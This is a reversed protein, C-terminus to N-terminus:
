SSSSRRSSGGKPSSPGSLPTYLIYKERFFEEEFLNSIETMKPHLASENIEEKLDGGKLCILGSRLQVANKEEGFQYTGNKLLPKSWQWLEKLPAVARSIAFDFKRGKIEEARTHQTTVNPLDIAEKV